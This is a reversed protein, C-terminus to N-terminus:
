VIGVQWVGSSGAARVPDEAPGLFSGTEAPHVREALLACPSVREASVELFLFVADEHRM